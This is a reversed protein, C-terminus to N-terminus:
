NDIDFTMVVDCVNLAIRGLKVDIQAGASALFSRGLILPDPPEEEYELVLFDTPILCEGIKVPIDDLIGEPIRKSRDALLLTIKTAMFNTMGLRVDVSHPM